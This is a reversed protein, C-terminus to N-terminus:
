NDGPNILFGARLGSRVTVRERKITRLESVKEDAPIENAPVDNARVTKPEASVRGHDRNM